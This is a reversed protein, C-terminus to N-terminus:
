AAREKVPRATKWELAITQLLGAVLVGILAGEIMGQAGRGQVLGLWYCAPLMVLFFSGIHILSPLWVIEQARLAFSATAQLGDFITMAAAIVLLSAIAPALAIGDLMADPRVLLSSLTDNFCVLIGGLVMGTLITAAVGLRGADTVERRNGRGFAEAVRVSTASAIGLYFMFCFGVVQVSYGYVTNAALSIWTAVIYTLNFGGWEAINSIASGVGVSYQRRAEDAPGPPSPKLAPTLAVVCGLLVISILWRSATTALAVGEAGMQPFGWYGGVFALDLLLNVTVGLYSVVSVLIPRRLAELYYSCVNSIMFGLLSTSLIRTVAATANAVHAHDTEGAAESVPAMDVFLWHFLPQAVLYVVVSLVVGIIVAGIMGRRFIRGTEGVRGIGMLESTLVQVGLLIGLGFGLSVGVPLWSNLVFPLEEPSYQGLVIADTIGMLMWAMRSIAIPVSLRLLDLIDAPRAWAPLSLGSM